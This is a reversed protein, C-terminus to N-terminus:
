LRFGVYVNCVQPDEVGDGGDHAVRWLWDGKAGSVLAAVGSAANNTLTGLSMANGSATTNPSVADLWNSGNDTSYQLYFRPDNVSQSRVSVRCSIRCYSYLTANFRFLHVNAGGPFMQPTNPMNTLTIPGAGTAIAHIPFLLWSQLDARIQALTRNAWAGSKRQLIDDDSPTLGAITTLDGDIQQKADLAAQLDLQSSLTGTISGWVADGDIVYTALAVRIRNDTIRVSM